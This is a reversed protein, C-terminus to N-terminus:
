VRRWWASALPRIIGRVRAFCGTIFSVVSYSIGFPFGPSALLLASYLRAFGVAPREVATPKEEVARLQVRSPASHGSVTSERASRLTHLPKAEVSHEPKAASLM